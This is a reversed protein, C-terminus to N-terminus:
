ESRSGDDPKCVHDILYKKFDHIWSNPDLIHNYRSDAYSQAEHLIKLFDKENDNILKIREYLSLDKYKM